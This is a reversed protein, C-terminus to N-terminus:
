LFFIIFKKKTLFIRYNIKEYNSEIDSKDEVQYYNVLEKIESFKLGLLKKNDERFHIRDTLRNFGERIAKNSATQQLFRERYNLKLIILM